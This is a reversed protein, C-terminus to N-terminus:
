CSCRYEEGDAGCLVGMWMKGGTYFWIAQWKCGPATRVWEMFRGTFPMLAYKEDELKVAFGV